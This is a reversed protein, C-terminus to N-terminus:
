DGLGLETGGKEEDIEIGASRKPELKLMMRFMEFGTLV